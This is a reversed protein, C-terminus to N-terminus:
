GARVVGAGPAQDEDRRVRVAVDFNCQVLRPFVGDEEGHRAKEARDGCNAGYNPEHRRVGAAREAPASAHAAECLESEIEVETLLGNM